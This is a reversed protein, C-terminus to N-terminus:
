EDPSLGAGTMRLSPHTRALRSSAGDMLAVSPASETLADVFAAGDIRLLRGATKATVSATRQIGEILGIEGFYDGATLSELPKAAGAGTATVELKGDAVVYFADAHQDKVIVAQGPVVDVEEAAGALQDIGGAPVSAFLDCGNLLAVKPALLVHRTAADRDMQRLLPWGALSIVPVGLGFIWLAADLGWSHIVLPTLSAGVLVALLEFAGFAGFVRALLDRPLSRQLATIALVDVVLTGAGRVVQVAFAVIPNDVFLFLLTPLCYFAMGVLIVVGLTPLRELRTVMGAALVGGAGLGALLYGYGETGTGLIQESLVIFLVTDVGFVFTAIVSFAVPAAAVPSSTIARAGVLAQKLAGAEGGETVDVPMSRARVRSLAVASILFCGANVAVAASPPGLLLLIAGLGPGAIVCVNDITNRLANASALDREGVLQPTMAAAAPEYPTALTSTLAATAIALGVPAHLAMEVALVAMVAVSALDLVVMLRVQEFREAIVGGYASFVLAPLFRCVTAAGIWGPSSTEDFIWVVLAVNYAWSGVASASFAGMMLAFDRHRLSSFLGPKDHM